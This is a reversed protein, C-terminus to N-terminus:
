EQAMFDIKKEEIVIMSFYQNYFVEYFEEWAIEETHHNGLSSSLVCRWRIQGQGRIADDAVRVWLELSCGMHELVVKTDNFWM